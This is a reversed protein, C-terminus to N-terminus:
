TFLHVCHLTHVVQIDTLLAFYVHIGFELRSVIKMKFYKIYVCGSKGVFFALKELTRENESTVLEIFKYTYTQHDRYIIVVKEQCTKMVCHNEDDLM